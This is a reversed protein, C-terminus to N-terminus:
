DAGMYILVKGRWCLIRPNTPLPGAKKMIEASFKNAEEFQYDKLMCEIKLCFHNVSQNCENLLATLSTVAKDFHGESIAKDIL